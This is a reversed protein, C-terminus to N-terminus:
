SPSEAWSEHIRCSAAGKGSWLPAIALRMSDVLGVSLLFGALRAASRDADVM